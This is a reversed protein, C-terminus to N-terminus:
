QYLLNLHLDDATVVTADTDAAGTTFAYGLGLEFTHGVIGVLDQISFAEGASLAIKFVPTDSAPVPTTAKNYFKVYRVAASTNKITGALLKAKAGKVVTANISAAASKKHALTGSPIGLSSVINANSM